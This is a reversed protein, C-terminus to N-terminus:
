RFGDQRLRTNLQRWTHMTPNQRRESWAALARILRTM